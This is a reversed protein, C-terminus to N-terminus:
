ADGARAEVSELVQMLGFHASECDVITLGGAMALEILRQLREDRPRRKIRLAATGEGLERHEVEGLLRRADVLLAPKVEGLVRLEVLEDRAYKLRLEDLRACEIVRGRSLIAVRECLQEVEALNHTTILVTKQQGLRAWHRLARRLGEASIPDLSRTPEDLLLLPPDPLLARVIALRQKNGSSYEQFARDLVPTLEFTESLQDIREALVREGLGHLRGFFALNQSGTLRYYFSREDASVLGVRRKVERLERVSDYGFVRVQGATPEILGCTSKILTTKGQGNRGVLGFIEGAHVQLSVGDLAQVVDPGRRKLLRRVRPLPRIFRKSLQDVDIAPTAM